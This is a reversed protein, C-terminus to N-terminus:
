QGAGGDTGADPQACTTQGEACTCPAGPCTADPFRGARVKPAQLTPDSPCQYYSTDSTYQRGVLLGNADWVSLNPGAVTNLSDVVLGCGPYSTRNGLCQPQSGACGFTTCFCAWSMTLTFDEVKCDCAAADVTGDSIADPPADAPHDPGSDAQSGGGGGAGGDPPTLASSCALVFVALAVVAIRGSAVM